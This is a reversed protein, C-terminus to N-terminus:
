YPENVCKECLSDYCYGGPYDYDYHEYSKFKKGCQKCPIYAYGNERFKKDGFLSLKAHVWWTRISM